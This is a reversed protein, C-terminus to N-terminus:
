YLNNTVSQIGVRPLVTEIETLIELKNREVPFLLRQTSMNVRLCLFMADYLNCNIVLEYLCFPYFIFNSLLFFYKTQKTSQQSLCQLKQCTKHLLFQLQRFQHLLRNQLVSGQHLLHLLPSVQCLLWPSLILCFPPSYLSPVPSQSQLLSVRITSFTSPFCPPLFPFEQVCISHFPPHLHLCLHGRGLHPCSHLFWIQLIPLHTEVLHCFTPATEEWLRRGNEGSLEVTKFGSRCYFNIM